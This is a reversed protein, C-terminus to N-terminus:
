QFNIRVQQVFTDPAVKKGIPSGLFEGPLRITEGYTLEAYIANKPRREM